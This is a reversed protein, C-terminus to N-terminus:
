FSAGIGPEGVSYLCDAKVTPIGCIIKGKQFPREASIESIPVELVNSKGNLRLTECAFKDFDNFFVVDFGAKEFGYDLGGCGSFLSVAKM